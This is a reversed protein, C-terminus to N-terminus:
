LDGRMAYWRYSLYESLALSSTRLNELRPIFSYGTLARRDTRYGTPAPIIDFGQKKFMAVSRKMHAASTVLIIRRNKVLRKVAKASELTNRATSEVVIDKAPVGISIATRAMAEAELLDPRGPDGSGGVLLLPIRLERYLAVSYVLRELSSDDPEPQLGPVSADRAGGSLVVIAQVDINKTDVFPAYLCELPQIIASSVPSICLGYLLLFGSAICLMGLVRKKGVILFGVAMLILIGSPPLILAQAIRTLTFFM